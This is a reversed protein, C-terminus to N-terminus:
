GGGINQEFFEPDGGVGDRGLDLAQESSVLVPCGRLIGRRQGSFDQPLGFPPPLAGQFIDDRLTM